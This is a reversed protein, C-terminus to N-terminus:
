PVRGATHLWRNMVFLSDQNKRHLTPALNSWAGSIPDLRHVEGGSAGMGTIYIRGDLVTVGHHARTSPMPALTTWTDDETDYMFVSDQQQLTDGYGGIVYIDSDLVCAAHAFRAEPMPAVENWTGQTSDFKHVNASPSGGSVGGLVYMASGVAVAALCIYAAHLSAVTTWTDSSPSYMEFSSLFQEDGDCGGTVYLERAVACARFAERAISMPAAAVWQGSTIDYREMSSLVEDDVGMGGMLFVLDAEGSCTGQEPQETCLEISYFGFERKLTRLLSVSPRAGPEAVSVHGDRMYELVHGFHEGERDVFISGDECVDQAYRGSFYADFFTHPVRRLAQVSIEFCHGGTNLEVRGEQAEQRMQMAAIERSLETRRADVEALGKAREKAV